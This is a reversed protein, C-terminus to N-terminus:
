ILFRRARRHVEISILNIKDKRIAPDRRLGGASDASIQQQEDAPSPEASVQSILTLYPWNTIPAALLRPDYRKSLCRNPPKEIILVIISSSTQKCLM